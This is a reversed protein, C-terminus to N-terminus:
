WGKFSPVLPAEALATPWVAFYKDGKLQTIYSYADVNQGTADFKVGRYGLIVQHISHNTERLAKQLAAPETSPARAIADCLVLFGEMSRATPDDIDNGTKAKFMANIKATVSNPAGIKFASRNFVGQALNGVSTAFSPDSFGADDGLAIPPRYDLNRLTKMYLIADNTYSIFIVVDPNLNKLQLVQAQVDTTNATYAVQAAITFGGEKL